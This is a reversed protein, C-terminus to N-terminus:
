CLRGGPFANRTKGSRGAWGPLLAVPSFMCCAYATGGVWWQAAYRLNFHSALLMGMWLWGMELIVPGATAM